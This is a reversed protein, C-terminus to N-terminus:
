LKIVIRFNKGSCRLRKLELIIILLQMCISFLLFDLEFHINKTIKKHKYPSERILGWIFGGMMNENHQGQYRPKFDMVVILSTNNPTKQHFREGQEESCAGMNDKFLDLHDHLM